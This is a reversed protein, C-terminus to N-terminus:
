YIVNKYILSAPAYSAYNYPAPYNTYILPSAINPLLSPALPAILPSAILAPGGNPGPAPAPAPAPGPAPGPAPAAIAVALLGAFLLTKFMTAVHSPIIHICSLRSSVIM